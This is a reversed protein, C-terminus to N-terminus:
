NIFMMQQADFPGRDTSPILFGPPAELLGQLKGRILKKEWIEM